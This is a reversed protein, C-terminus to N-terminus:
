QCYAHCLHSYVSRSWAKFSFGKLETNEDSPVKIEADAARWQLRMRLRFSLCLTNVLTCATTHMTEFQKVFPYLNPAVNFKLYKIFYRM